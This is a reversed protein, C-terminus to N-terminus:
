ECFNLLKYNISRAATACIIHIYVVRGFPNQLKNINRKNWTLRCPNWTTTAGKKDGVLALYTDYFETHWEVDNIVLSVVNM